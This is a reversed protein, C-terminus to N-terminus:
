KCFIDAGKILGNVPAELPSSVIYVPIGLKKKFFERTGNLLCGGGSLIIGSHMIDSSIEALSTELTDIIDDAIQSYVKILIAQIESTSIIISSPLGSITDKGSVELLNNDFEDLLTGIKMKIYDSTKNGILLHHKLRIYRSIAKSASDGSAQSFNSSVIEGMTLISISTTQGGIDVVMNGRTSFIDIGAQLAIAKCVEILYFSKGKLSYIVEKLAEKEVETIKNPITFLLNSHKFNNSLKVSDLAAKLYQYASEKSTIVGNVIPFVEELDYPTKGLVKFALYGFEVTKKDLKNRLLCTPENYNIQDSSNTKILTNSSGLDIGIVKM